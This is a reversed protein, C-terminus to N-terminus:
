PSWVLLRCVSCRSERVVTERNRSAVTGVALSHSITPICVSVATVSMTSVTASSCRYGNVSTHMVTIRTPNVIAASYLAWRSRLASQPM